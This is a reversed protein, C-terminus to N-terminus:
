MRTCKRQYVWGHDSINYSVKHLISHSWWENRLWYSLELFHHDHDNTVSKFWGHARESSQPPVFTSSIRHPPTQIHWGVVITTLQFIILPHLDWRPQEGVINYFITPRLLQCTSLCLGGGLWM